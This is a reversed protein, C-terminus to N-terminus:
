YSLSYLVTPLSILSFNIPFSKSLLSYPGTQPLTEANARTPLQSFSTLIILCGLAYLLPPSLLNLSSYPWKQHKAKQM